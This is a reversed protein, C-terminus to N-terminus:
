DELSEVGKSIDIIPSPKAPRYLLVTKGVVHLLYANLEKALAEGIQKCEKKKKVSANMRILVMEHRWLQADLEELWRPNMEQTPIFNTFDVSEYDGGTKELTYFTSPFLITPMCQEAKWKNAISRLYARKKGTDLIDGEYDINFPPTIRKIFCDVLHKLEKNENNSLLDVAVGTSEDNGGNTCLFTVGGGDVRPNPDRVGVVVRDIGALLLSKACPPTKGYHCCPELTVYATTTTESDSVFADQFLQKAGSTKAEEDDGDVGSTYIASLENVKESLKEDEKKSKSIWPPSLVSLAAEVGDEVHGSAELLAFVEAHPMGARPHFGKGIVKIVDDGNDITSQTIICGVAPNPYTNGYGLMACDLAVKMYYQDEKTIVAKDNKSEKEANDIIEDEAGLSPSPSVFLPIQSRGNKDVYKHDHCHHPSSSFPSLLLNSSLKANNRLAQQAQQRLPVFM